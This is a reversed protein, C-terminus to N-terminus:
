GVPTEPKTKQATKSKKLEAKKAEVTEAKEPKPMSVVSSAQLASIAEQLAKVQARLENVEDTSPKTVEQIHMDSTKKKDRIERYRKEIIESVKSSLGSTNKMFLYIGRVRNFYADNSISVLANLGEVTPAALIEKIQEDTLIKTHDRIRLKDYLAEAFIDEFWLLGYKFVGSNNNIYMIEDLTLPFATPEGDKAGPITYSDYRTSVAVPSTSYNFVLYQKNNDLEM